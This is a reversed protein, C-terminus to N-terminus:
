YDTDDTNDTNGIRCTNDTTEINNTNDTRGECQVTNKRGTSMWYVWHVVTTDTSM